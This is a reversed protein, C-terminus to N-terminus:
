GRVGGSCRRVSDSQAGVMSPKRCIQGQMTLMTFSGWADSRGIDRVGMQGAKDLKTGAIVFRQWEVAEATLAVHTSSMCGIHVPSSEPHIGCTGGSGVGQMLEGETCANTALMQPHFNVLGVAM